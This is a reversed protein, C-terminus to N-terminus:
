LCAKIKKKFCLWVELERLQVNVRKILDSVDSIDKAGGCAILPINLNEQMLKYLDTEYGMWTGDRDINNLMIEGAGLEECRKAWKFLDINSKRKGSHSYINYKGRFLSKKVDVSVVVAQSGCFNAVQSILDPNEM